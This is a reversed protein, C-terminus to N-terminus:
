QSQTLNLVHGKANAAVTEHHLTKTKTCLSLTCTQALVIPDTPTQRSSFKMEYDSEMSVSKGREGARVEVDYPSSVSAVSPTIMYFDIMSLLLSCVMSTMQLHSKAEYFDFSGSKQSLNVPIKAARHHLM